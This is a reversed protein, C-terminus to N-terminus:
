TKRAWICIGWANETVDLHSHVVRYGVSQLLSEYGARTEYRQSPPHYIGATEEALWQEFQPRSQLKAYVEPFSRRIEEFLVGNCFFLYGGPRLVWHTQRLFAFRLEDEVLRGFCAIALAVDFSLDPLASCIM